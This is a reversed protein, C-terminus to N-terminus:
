KGSSNSFGEAWEMKDLIVKNIIKEAIMGDIGLLGSNRKCYQSLTKQAEQKSGYLGLEVTAECEFDETHFYALVEYLINPEIVGMVQRERVSFGNPNAEFGPVKKYSEIAELANEYTSYTGLGKPDFYFIGGESVFLHELEYVTM